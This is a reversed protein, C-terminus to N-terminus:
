SVAVESELLALVSQYDFSQLRSRLENAIEPARTQIRDVVALMDDLDARLAADRLQERLDAPVATAIKDKSLFSRPRVVEDNTQEEAYVYEAGTLRGVKDYLERERFPKGMFDDGGADKVERRNEQFASATIAIIPTKGRRPLLRIRRIAERGDLRPMRLDMLVLDPNWSEFAELAEVGDSTTRTMFGIPELMKQLLERNELRDDAILIRIEKQGPRLHLVRRRDTKDKAAISTGEEVLVEFCFTTGHGLESRVQMDGGMLRTFERSITLGLGTGTGARQGTETQEFQRFLKPLEEASIGHGTDEVEGCLRMSKGSGRKSEVRVVIGGHETFKVANGILNIFIQRLKSEDAWIFRPVDEKRQISFQLQREEARLRFLRDLDELMSHLDFNTPQLKVRGAEIKSMELIDNILALLHEGSRNITDLHQRQSSTIEPERLMLQSFGLIANMPTRIEHSMNALFVSKAQNASEATRKALQLKEETRAREILIGALHTALRILERDHESPVHPDRYYMAVTGLLVNDSSFIPTSCCAGIGHEKALGRYDAWHSDTAVDTAFVPQRTYAASGCSGVRPGIHTGDLLRNYASPLSPAAGNRLVKGTEDILLVSCLMGDRSQAEVGRVLQDLLEPLPSGAAAKELINKEAALADEAQRRRTVDVALVVLSTVEGKSDLVPNFCIQFCTGDRKDEDVVASRKQIAQDILTQRHKAIEAPLASTFPTNVLDSVRKGARRAAVENCTVIRGDRDLLILSEPTAELISLLVQQKERLEGTRTGVLEELHERHQRLEEEARKREFALGLQTAIATIIKVLRQDEPRLERLFFEIVAIVDDKALIPIALAAKLGCETAIKARPFNPDRTVDELWASHKSKWVRGPLGEGPQFSTKKSALQFRELEGSDGMWVPGLELVNEGRRPLWSQGIDWGTKECVRRLVVALASSLDEAAAVEMTITQLLSLQEEQKRRTIDRVLLRNLLWVTLVLLLIGILLLGLYLGAIM